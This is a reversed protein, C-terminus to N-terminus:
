YIAPQRRQEVESLWWQVSEGHEKDVYALILSELLEILNFMIDRQLKWKWDPLLM